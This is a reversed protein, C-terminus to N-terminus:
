AESRCWMVYNRVIEGVENDQYYVRDYRFMDAIKHGIKDFPKTINRRWTPLPNYEPTYVLDREPNKLPTTKRHIYTYMSMNKVVVDCQLITKDFIIFYTFVIDKPLIKHPAHPYIDIEWSGGTIMSLKPNDFAFYKDSKKGEKTPKCYEVAVTLSSDGYTYLDITGQKMQPVHKLGMETFYPCYKNVTNGLMFIKVNNRDRIITSLTNMYLIFEDPIYGTRTLFEDFVITEIKPYSTSKDHEQTNIAFGYAFPYEDRERDGNEDYRCLYWRGGWYYVGTWEDEFIRAVEGNEELAQFMVSGNKGKFDTDWRRVIALQGGTEHYHELSYKLCAYTKGNSREGFIVNYLANHELIADLSYYKSKSKKM